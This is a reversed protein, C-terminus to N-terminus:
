RARPGRRLTGLQRARSSRGTGPTITPSGDLCVLLEASRTALMFGIARASLWDRFRRNQGYAEDRETVRVCGPTRARELM